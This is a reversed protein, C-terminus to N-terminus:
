ARPSSPAALPDHSSLSASRMLSLLEALLEDLDTYPTIVDPAAMLNLTLRPKMRVRDIVEVMPSGPTPLARMVSSLWGEPLVPERLHVHM